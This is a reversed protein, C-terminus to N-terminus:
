DWARTLEIDGPVQRRAGTAQCMDGPEKDGKLQPVGCSLMDNDNEYMVDPRPNDADDQPPEIRLAEWCGTM